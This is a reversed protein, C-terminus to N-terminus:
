KLKRRNKKIRKPCQANEPIQWRGSKKEAGVTVKILGQKCWKRITDESYGWKEAAEKVSMYTLTIVGM